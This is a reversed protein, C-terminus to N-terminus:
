ACWVPLADIQEAGTQTAPYASVTACPSSIHEPAHHSHERRQQNAQVAREAGIQIEALAVKYILRLRAPLDLM